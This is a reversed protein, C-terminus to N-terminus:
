PRKPQIGRGREEFLRAWSREAMKGAEGLGQTIIPSVGQRFVGDGVDISRGERRVGHM